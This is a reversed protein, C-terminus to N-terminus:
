AEVMDRSHIIKKAQKKLALFEESSAIIKGDVVITGRGVVEAGRINSRALDEGLKKADSNLMFRGLLKLM